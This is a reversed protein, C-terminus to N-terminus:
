LYSTFVSLNSPLESLGLDSCDVRLLMRGDPECQCHAPCGRLLAGPKPSGGVAALQLLVPLSLLVGVPSTDMTGRCPAPLSGRDSPLTRTAAPRQRKSRAQPAPRRAGAGGRPRLPSAGRPRATGAAAVRAEAAARAAAAAPASLTAAAPRRSPTSCCRRECAQKKFRELGFQAGLSTLAARSGLCGGDPQVRGGGAGERRERACAPLRSAALPAPSNEARPSPRRRASEPAWCRTLAPPGGVRMGRQTTAVWIRSGLPVQRLSVAARLGFSAARKRWAWKLYHFSNM